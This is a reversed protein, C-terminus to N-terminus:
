IILNNRNFNVFISSFCFKELLRDSYIAITSELNLMQIIVRIYTYTKVCFLHDLSHDQLRSYKRHLYKFELYLNM